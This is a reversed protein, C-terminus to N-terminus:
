KNSKKKELENKVKFDTINSIKMDLLENWYKKQSFLKNKSLLKSLYCKNFTNEPNIYVTKEAIYILIFNLYLIEKISISNNIIISLLSSLHHINELCKIEVFANNKYYSSLYKMFLISNNKNLEIQNINYTLADNSLPKTNNILQEINNELTTDKTKIDENILQLFEINDLSKNNEFGLIKEGFQYQIFHLNNNIKDKSESKKFIEYNLFQEIPFRIKNENKFDLTNNYIKLDRKININKGIKKLKEGYEVEITSSLKFIKSFDEMVTIIYNLRSSEENELNDLITQYKEDGEVLCKNFKKLDKKYILEANISNSQSKYFLDKQYRLTEDKIKDNEKLKNLKQELDSTEKSLNFYNNKSKEVNMKNQQVISNLRSLDSLFENNKNSLEILFKDFPEILNTNLQDFTNKLKDLFLNSSTKFENYAITISSSQICKQIELNFDELPKKTKEIFYLGYKNIAKFFSNLKNM